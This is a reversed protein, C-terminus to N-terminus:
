TPGAVQSRSPPAPRLPWDPLKGGVARAILAFASLITFACLWLAVGGAFSWDLAVSIALVNNTMHLAIPAYLSGSAQYLLCLIAGLLALIPLFIAKSGAAHLAGFILGDIVAALGIAVYKPSVRALSNRLGPYIVGRLLFEEGIPALVTVCFAVVFGALVTDKAGLKEPLDDKEDGVGLLSGLAASLLAYAVFALVIGGVVLWPRSPMKLGFDRRRVPGIVLVLILVPVAVFVANQLLSSVATGTIKATTTGEGIVLAPIGIFLAAGFTTILALLAHGAGWRHEESPPPLPVPEASPAPPPM